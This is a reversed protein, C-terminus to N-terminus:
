KIKELASVLQEKNMQDFGQINCRKAHRLLEEKTQSAYSSAKVGSSQNQNKSALSTM